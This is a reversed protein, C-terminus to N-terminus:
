LAVLKQNISMLPNGHSDTLNAPIIITDLLIRCLEEVSISKKFHKKLISVYDPFKMTYAGELLAQLEVAVEICSEGLSM